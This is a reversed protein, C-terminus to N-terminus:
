GSILKMNANGSGSFAEVALVQYNFNRNPFGHQAWYNFHNQMTVTGSTRKGERVSFYQPFTTTGVISPQNYQTHTCVQYNAGDSYLTGLQTVGSGTCPNFSGYDEVVYYESLSGSGTWGYISLYSGSNGPNYSGSYTIARGTGTSWGLGVVFDTDTNWGCSFTGDYQNYQFDAVGGNYNQVYDGTRKHLNIVEVEQSASCPTPFALFVPLLCLLSAISKM